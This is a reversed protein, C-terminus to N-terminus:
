SEPRGLRAWWTAAFWGPLALRTTEQKAAKEGGALPRYNDDDALHRTSANTRGSM